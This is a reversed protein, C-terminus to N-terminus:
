GEDSGGDVEMRIVAELNEASRREIDGIDVTLGAGRGRKANTEGESEEGGEEAEGM